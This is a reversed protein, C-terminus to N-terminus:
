FKRCILCHRLETWIFKLIINTGWQSIYVNLETFFLISFTLTARYLFVYRKSSIVFVANRTRSTGRSVQYGIHGM